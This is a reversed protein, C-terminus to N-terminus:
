GIRHRRQRARSAEYAPGAKKAYGAGFAEVVKVAGDPGVFIELGVGATRSWRARPEAPRVGAGLRQRARPRRSTPTSGPAASTSSAPHRGKKKRAVVSRAESRRYRAPALARAHSARVHPPSQLRVATVSANQGGGQNHRVAAHRPKKRVRVFGELEAEAFISSSRASQGRLRRPRRGPSKASGMVGALSRAIAAGLGERTSCRGGPSALAAVASCGADGGGVGRGARQSTEGRAREGRRFGREPASELEAHLRPLEVRM